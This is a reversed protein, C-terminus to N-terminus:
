KAAQRGGERERELGLTSHLVFEVRQRVKRRDTAFHKMAFTKYLIHMHYIDHCARTPGRTFGTFGAFVHCLMLVIFHLLPPTLTYLPPFTLLASGDTSGLSM